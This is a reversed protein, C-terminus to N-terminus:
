DTKFFSHHNGAISIKWKFVDYRPEFKTVPRGEVIIGQKNFYSAYVFNQMNYSDGFFDWLFNSRPYHVLSKVTCVPQPCGAIAQYRAKMERDYHFLTGKLLDAYCTRLNNPIVLSIIILIIGIIGFTRSLLTYVNNGRKNYMYSALTLIFFSWTILYNFFIVNMARPPLIIGQAWFGPFIGTFILFPCVLFSIVPHVRFLKAWHVPLKSIIHIAGNIFFVSVPLVIMIWWSFYKLTEKVSQELSFRLNHIRSAPLEIFTTRVANGPAGIEVVCAGALVLLVIFFHWSFRKLILTRYGLIGFLLVIMTLMSVENLGAIFVAITAGKVTVAIKKSAHSKQISESLLSAVLILLYISLPIALTYTYVGTMWYIGESTSTMHMLFLSLIIMSVTIGQKVSLIGSFFRRQLFYLSLGTGAIILIPIIRYLLVSKILLPNISCLLATSSYRGLWKTYFFYQANTFGYVRTYETFIFDDLQPHVFFAVLVFPLIFFALIWFFLNKYGNIKNVLDFIM